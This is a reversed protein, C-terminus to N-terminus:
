PRAEEALDLPLRALELPLDARPAELPLGALAVPHELDQQAPLLRLATLGACGVHELERPGPREHLPQPMCASWAEFAHERREPHTVREGGRVEPERRGPHEVVPDR